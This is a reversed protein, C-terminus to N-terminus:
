KIILCSRINKQCQIFFRDLVGMILLLRFFGFYMLTIKIRKDEMLGYYYSLSCDRIENTARKLFQRKHVYDIKKFFSLFYSGRWLYYFDVWDKNLKKNRIIEDLSESVDFVDFMNRDSKLTIKGSRGQRYSHYPMNSCIIKYESSFLDYTVAIDENISKEPFRKFIDRKFIKNCVSFNMLAKFKDTSKQEFVVVDADFPYDPYVYDSHSGDDWFCHHLCSAIDAAYEQTLGYLYSFMEPHALDDGDIFGVFEGSAIDLGANRASGLGGNQKSIYIIRGDRRAFEKLIQGTDDTSGDDIVIIEIDSLSQSIISGLCEVIYDRVNYAAIIISLKSKM